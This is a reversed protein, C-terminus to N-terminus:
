QEVVGAVVAEIQDVAAGIAIDTPDVGGPMLIIKECRKLNKEPAICLGRFAIKFVAFVDFIDGM